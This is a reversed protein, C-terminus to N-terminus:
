GASHAMQADGIAIQGLALGGDNCPVQSHTLVEFGSEKLRSSLYFFLQVNQLVGGSLGVRELGYRERAAVATQLFLEALTWHFRSAIGGIREGKKIDEVIARILPLVSLPGSVASNKLTEPYTEGCSPEVHMELEIAAQAEFNVKHRLNLLAALADFLRGCSSTLPANLNKDIMRLITDSNKSPLNKLFDLGPGFLENGYAAYLYSLAMRWPERVAAAGGPMAVPKLWAYREFTRADGVLVEGGWITGDLGYGAGDMIIGITPEDVGNEAMVSALHAHHHQVGIRVSYPQRLAWKTSLYEPHLDYAIAEPTIELLKELHSISNEFFALAAPNDLDGVHQSLFVQDHRSLAITNKLEGGCALIKKRTAKKLFVPSPM